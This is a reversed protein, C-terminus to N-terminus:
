RGDPVSSACQERIREIGGFEIMAQRRAEGPSLGAAEKAARSQELHSRLEVNLESPRRPRVFSRLRAPIEAIM